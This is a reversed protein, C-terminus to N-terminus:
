QWETKKSTETGPQNRLNCNLSQTIYLHFQSAHNPIQVPINRLTQLQIFHSHKFQLNFPFLSLHVGDVNTIEKNCCLPNLRIRYQTPDHVLCGIQKWKQPGVWWVLRVFM